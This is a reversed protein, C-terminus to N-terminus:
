TYTQRSDGDPSPSPTPKPSVLPDFDAPVGLSTLAALTAHAFRSLPFIPSTMSTSASIPICKPEKPVSPFAGEMDVVFVSEM